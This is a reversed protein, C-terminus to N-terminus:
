KVLRGNLDQSFVVSPVGTDTEVVLVRGIDTGPGSVSSLTPVDLFVEGKGLLLVGIKLSIM